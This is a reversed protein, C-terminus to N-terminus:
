MSRMWLDPIDPIDEVMKQGPMVRAVVLYPRYRFLGSYILFQTVKPLLRVFLRIRPVHEVALHRFSWRSLMGNNIQVDM